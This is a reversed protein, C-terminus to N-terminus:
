GSGDTATAEVFKEEERTPLQGLGVSTTRSRKAHRIRCRSTGDVRYAANCTSGDGGTPGDLATGANNACSVGSGRTTFLTVKESKVDNKVWTKVKQGRVGSFSPSINFRLGSPLPISGVFVPPLSGV